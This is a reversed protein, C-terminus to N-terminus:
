RRHHATSPQQNDPTLHLDAATRGPLPINCTTCCGEEQICVRSDQVQGGVVLPWASCVMPPLLMCTTWLEQHHAYFHGLCTSHVMLAIFCVTVDLQNKKEVCVPRLKHQHTVSLCATVIGAASRIHVSQVVFM